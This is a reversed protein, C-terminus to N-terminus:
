VYREMYNTYKKSQYYKDPAHMAQAMKERMKQAGKILDKYKARFKNQFLQKLLKSSQFELFCNQHM